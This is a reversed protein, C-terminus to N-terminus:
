STEDIGIRRLGDFRGAGRRSELDAVVRSCIPGVSRWQIRALETVAKVTCNVTLYAVWDEFDRTCRAKHRAWPVSEVLVGHDPCSVRRTTYRLFCMSRALDMARWLRPGDSTDYHGCKRGCVPCRLGCSKWPRVDVIVRDDEIAAFKVVTHTLGLVYRLIRFMRWPRERLNYEVCM